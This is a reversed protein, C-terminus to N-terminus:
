RWILLLECHLCWAGAASALRIPHLHLNLLSFSQPRQVARLAQGHEHAVGPQAPVHRKHPVQVVAFGQHTVEALARGTAHRGKTSHLEHPLRTVAQTHSRWGPQQRGLGVWGLGVFTSARLGASSTPCRCYPLVRTRSNQRAEAQQTQARLGAFSNSRWFGPSPAKGPSRGTSGRGEACPAECLVSMM